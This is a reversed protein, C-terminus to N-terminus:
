DKAVLTKKKDEMEKKVTTMLFDEWGNRSHGDKKNAWHELPDEKFFHDIGMEVVYHFQEITEPTLPYDYNNYEGNDIGGRRSTPVIEMLIPEIKNFNEYALEFNNENIAKRVKRMSVKSRLIKAYNNEETSSAVINVAFRSLGLVLAALKSNRLWFNSLTRYEFGHPPLRFEGAKGYNKRREINGENRDLLVCTNGVVIDLIQAMTQTDEMAKKVEQNGGHGLHIHGGASRKMYKSADKIKVGQKDTYGNRSPTCGFQKSEPSLSAMEEKSIPVTQSFDATVGPHDKLVDKVMKFCQGINDEVYARCHSPSPNLEAQIGDIIIKGVSHKILGEKPLIKEAGITKGEKVFFFEPDAGMYVTRHTIKKLSM